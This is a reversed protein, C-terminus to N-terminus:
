LLFCIHIYQSWSVYALMMFQSANHIWFMQRKVGGTCAPLQVSRGSSAAGVAMDRLWLDALSINTQLAEIFQSVLVDGPSGPM